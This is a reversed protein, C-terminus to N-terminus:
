RPIALNATGASAVIEIQRGDQGDFGIRATENPMVLRCGGIAPVVCCYLVDHERIQFDLATHALHQHLSWLVTEEIYQVSFGAFEERGVFVDEAVPGAVHVKFGATGHFQRVGIVLILWFEDIGSRIPAMPPVGHGVIWRGPIHVDRGHHSAHRIYVVFVVDVCLLGPIRARIEAGDWGGHFSNRSRPLLVGPVELGPIGNFLTFHPAVLKGASEVAAQEARGSVKQELSRAVASEDGVRSVLTLFQPLHLGVNSDDRGWDSIGDVTLLVDCHEGSPAAAAGNHTYVAADRRGRAIRVTAFYKGEFQASVGLQWGNEGLTLDHDRLIHRADRNLRESSALSQKLVVTEHAM